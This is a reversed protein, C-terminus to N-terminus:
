AISREFPPRRRESSSSSSLGLVPEVSLTPRLAENEVRLSAAEADKASDRGMITLGLENPFARSERSFLEIMDMGAAFRESAWLGITSGMAGACGVAWGVMLGLASRAGRDMLGLSGTM